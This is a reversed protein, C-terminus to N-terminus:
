AEAEAILKRAKAPTLLALLARLILRSLRRCHRRTPRNSNHTRSRQLPYLGNKVGSKIPFPRAAENLPGTIERRSLAALGCPSM